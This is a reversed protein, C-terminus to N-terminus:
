TSIRFNDQDLNGQQSTATASPEQSVVALAALRLQLKSTFDRDKVVGLGLLQIRKDLVDLAHIYRQHLRSLDSLEEKGNSLSKLLHQIEGDMSNLPRKTEDLKENFRSSNTLAESTSQQAQLINMDFSSRTSSLSKRFEKLREAVVALEPNSSANQKAGAIASVAELVSFENDLADLKLLLEKTQPIKNWITEVAGLVHASQRKLEEVEGNLDRCGRQLLDVSSQVENEVEQVKAVATKSQNVSMDSNQFEQELAKIHDATRELDISSEQVFLSLEKVLAQLTEFNQSKEKLKEQVSCLQKNLDELTETKAKLHGSLVNFARGIDGLENNSTINARSEFRGLAINQSARLLNTVAASLNHSLYKHSILIIAIALATGWVITLDTAKANGEAVRRCDGIQKLEYECLENALKITRTMVTLGVGNKIREFAAAQGHLEYENLTMELSAIRETMSKDLRELLVREDPDDILIRLRNLTQKALEVESRYQDRVSDKDTIIYARQSASAYALHFCLEQTAGLTSASNYVAKHSDTLQCVCYYASVAVLSIVVAASLTLIGLQQSIRM